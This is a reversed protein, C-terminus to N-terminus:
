SAFPWHNLVVSRAALQLCIFPSDHNAAQTKPDVCRSPAYTWGNKLKGEAVRIGASDFELFFLVDCRNKYEPRERDCFEQCSHADELRWKILNVIVSALHNANNNKASPPLETFGLLCFAGISVAFYWVGLWWSAALSFLLVLMLGNRTQSLSRYHAADWIAITDGFAGFAPAQVQAADARFKDFASM